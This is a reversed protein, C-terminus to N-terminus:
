KGTTLCVLVCDLTLNDFYPSFDLYFKELEDKSEDRIKENYVGLETEFNKGIATFFFLFPHRVIVHVVSPRGQFRINTM